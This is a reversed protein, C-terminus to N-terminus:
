STGTNRVLGATDGGFTVPLRRELDLGRSAQKSIWQWSHLDMNLTPILHM